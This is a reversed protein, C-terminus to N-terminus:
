SSSDNKAFTKLYLCRIFSNRRMSYGKYRTIWVFLIENWLLYNSVLQLAILYTERTNRHFFFNGFPTFSIATKHNWRTFIGLTSNKPLNSLNIQFEFSVFTRRLNDFVMIRIGLLMGVIGRTNVKTCFFLKRAPIISHLDLIFPTKVITFIKDSTSM